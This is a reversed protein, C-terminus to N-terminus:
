WIQNLIQNKQNLFDRCMLQLIKFKRKKPDM